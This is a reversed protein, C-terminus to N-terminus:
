HYGLKLMMKVMVGIWGATKTKFKLLVSHNNDAPFDAIDVNPNLFPEDKNYQWLSGSIKSYNDSCDKLNYM